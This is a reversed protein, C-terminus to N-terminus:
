TAQQHRARMGDRLEDRSVEGNGDVDLGRLRAAHAPFESQSLVGNADADLHDFVRAKMLSERVAIQREHDFEDAAGVNLTNADVAFVDHDPLSFM